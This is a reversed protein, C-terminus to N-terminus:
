RIINESLNKLFDQMKLFDIIKTKLCFLLIIFGTFSLLTLNKSQKIAINKIFKKKSLSENTIDKKSDIIKQKINNPKSKNSLLCITFDLSSCVELNYFNKQFNVKLLKM